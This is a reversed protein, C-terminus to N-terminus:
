QGEAKPATKVSFIRKPQTMDEGTAKANYKWVFKYISYENSKDAEIKENMEKEAEEVTEYSYSYPLIKIDSDYFKLEIGRAKAPSVIGDTFYEALNEVMKADGTKYVSVNSYYVRTEYVKEGKEEWSARAEIRAFCYSGGGGITNTQNRTETKVKDKIKGLVGQGFGQAACITLIFSTLIVLRYFNSTKM